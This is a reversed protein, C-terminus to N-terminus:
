LTAGDPAFAEATGKLATLDTITISIGTSHESVTAASALLVPVEKGSKSTLSIEVTRSKEDASHLFKFFPENWGIRIFEFFSKGAITEHSIEMMQAFAFNAYLIVGNSNITVAGHVMAEVLSHYLARDLSEDSTAPPTTAIPSKIKKATKEKSM